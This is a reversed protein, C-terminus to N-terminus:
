QLKYTYNLPVQLGDVNAYAQLKISQGALGSQFTNVLDQVVGTLQLSLDLDLTSVSVPAVARPAFDAVRGILFDKGNQTTYVNGAISLVNFSHNSTNQVSLELTIVPGLGSWSLRKVRGPYFNLSLAAQGRSFLNWALLGGGLILLGKLLRNDKKPTYTAVNSLTPFGPKNETLYHPLTPIGL